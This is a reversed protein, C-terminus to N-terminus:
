KLVSLGREVLYQIAQEGNHWRLVENINLNDKRYEIRIEINLDTKWEKIDWKNKNLPLIDDVFFSVRRGKKMKWINFKVAMGHNYYYDDLNDWTLAITKNEPEYDLCTTGRSAGIYEGNHYTRTIVTYFNLM